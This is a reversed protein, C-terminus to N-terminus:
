MADALSLERGSCLLGPKWNQVSGDIGITDPCAPRSWGGVDVDLRGEVVLVRITIRRTDWSSASDAM